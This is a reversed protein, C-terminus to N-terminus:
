FITCIWITVICCVMCMLHLHLTLLGCVAQLESANFLHTGPAACHLETWHIKYIVARRKMRITHSKLLM